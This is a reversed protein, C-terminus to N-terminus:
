HEGIKVDIYTHYKLRFKPCKDLFIKMYLPERRVLGCTSSPKTSLCWLKLHLSRREMRLSFHSVMLIIKIDCLMTWINYIYIIYQYIPLQCYVHSTPAQITAVTPLINIYLICWLWFQLLSVVLHRAAASMEAHPCCAAGLSVNVM